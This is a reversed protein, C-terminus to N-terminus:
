ILTNSNTKAHGQQLLFLCASGPLVDPMGARQLTKKTKVRHKNIALKKKGFVLLLLNVILVM